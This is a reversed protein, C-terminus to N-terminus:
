RYYRWDTVFIRFRGKGLSDFDKLTNLTHSLTPLSMFARIRELAMSKILILVDVSFLSEAIIVLCTDLKQDDLRM